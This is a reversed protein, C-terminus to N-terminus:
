PHTVRLYSLFWAMYYFRKKKEECFLDDNSGPITIPLTNWSHTPTDHFHYNDVPNANFYYQSPSGDPTAPSFGLKDEDNINYQHWDLTYAMNAICLSVVERHLGEAGHM